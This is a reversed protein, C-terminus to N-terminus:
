GRVLSGSQREGRQLPNKTTALLSQHLPRANADERGVILPPRRTDLPFPRAGAVLCSPSPLQLAVPSDSALWQRTARSPEADPSRNRASAHPAHLKMRTEPWPERVVRAGPIPRRRARHRSRMQGLSHLSVPQRTRMSARGVIGIFARRASDLTMDPRGIGGSPLPKVVM